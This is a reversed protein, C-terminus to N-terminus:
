VNKAMEIPVHPCNQCVMFIGHIVMPIKVKQTSIRIYFGHDVELNESLATECLSELSCSSQAGTLSRHLARLQNVWLSGQGM